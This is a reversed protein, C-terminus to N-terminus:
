KKTSQKDRYADQCAAVMRTLVQMCPMRRNGSTSQLSHSRPSIFVVAMADPRDSCPRSASRGMDRSVRSRYWPGCTERSLVADVQGSVNADNRIAFIRIPRFQQGHPDDNSEPNEHGHIPEHRNGEWVGGDRQITAKARRMRSLGVRWM